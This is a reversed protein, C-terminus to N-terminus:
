IRWVHLVGCAPLGLLGPIGEARTLVATRGGGEMIGAGLRDTEGEADFRWTVAALDGAQAHMAPVPQFALRAAARSLADHLSGGASWCRIARLATRRSNWAPLDLEAAINRGTLAAVVAAAWMICDTEGWVPAPLAAWHARVALWASRRDIAPGM